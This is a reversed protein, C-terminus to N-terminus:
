SAGVRSARSLQRLCWRISLTTCLRTHLWSLHFNDIIPRFHSLGGDEKSPYYVAVPLNLIPVGAQALLVAIEVDFSMRNTKARQALAEAVPYIRFGILADHITNRGTELDVWFKTIKRGALRARPASDDYVPAGLIVHDPHSKAAALFAPIAGIDHQGDADIQFVHSFGLKSAVAFANKVAAGKGLNTDFRILQALNDHAVAECAARGEEGSGDDIVIVDPLHVRIKEIV